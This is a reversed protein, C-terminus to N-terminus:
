SYFSIRRFNIVIFKGDEGKIPLTLIVDTGSSVPTTDDLDVTINMLDNIIDVKTQDFPGFYIYYTTNDIDLSIIDNAEAETIVNTVPHKYKYTVGSNNTDFSITTNNITISIFNSTTGDVNFVNPPNQSGQVGVGPM